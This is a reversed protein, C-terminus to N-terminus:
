EWGTMVPWILLVIALIFFAVQLPLVWRFWKEFPIKAMALTGVTVGSTPIIMNTFGDGFQYALVATQRTIGSLDALPAMLPMTLAAKTSGSPIFFNLAMQLVYMADAALVPPLSSAATGMGHLITDLIVGSELIVLIGGAFGVILAAGSMEKVGELFANALEDPSKGAIFGVFVGMAFFLGGLEIIYWELAIVGYIMAVITAVLVLLCLGHRLTFETQHALSEELEARRSQDIEYMISRKPDKKIRAAYIMVWAITFATVIVWVISRYGWGSVPQLGALGQAIQLTFPNLFAGAFGVGAALFTLSVGVLSDYGLAIALPVFILAFPMAEECMGFAAGFFSFFTMVIPIILYESGKLAKVLRQTGSAIAGSENLIFFAGGVIFIFVIIDGLNMFGHLPATFVQIHQPVAEQYAFSGDVLVERTHGEVEIKQRQYSGGPLVWTLAAAFVILGFVIVFVNPIRKFM